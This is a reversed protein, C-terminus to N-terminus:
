DNSPCHSSTTQAIGMMSGQQKRHHRRHCSFLLGSSPRTLTCKPKSQAMVRSLSCVFLCLCLFSLLCLSDSLRPRQRCAIAREATPPGWIIFSNCREACVVSISETTTKHGFSLTFASQHISDFNAHTCDFLQVNEVV